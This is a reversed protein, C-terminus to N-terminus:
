DFLSLFHLFIMKGQHLLINKSEKSESRKHLLIVNLGAILFNCPQKKAKLFMIKGFLKKSCAKKHMPTQNVGLFFSAM